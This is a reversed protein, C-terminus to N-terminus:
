TPKQWKQYESWTATTYNAQKVSELANQYNTLDGKRVLNFQAALIKEIAKEIADQPSIATVVNAAVVKQDAAWSLPTYSDQDAECGFGGSLRVPKRKEVLKLQAAVIKQPRM